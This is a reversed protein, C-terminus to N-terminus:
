DNKKYLYAVNASGERRNVKTIGFSKLHRKITRDSLTGGALQYREFFDTYKCGDGLREFIDDVIFQEGAINEESQKKKKKNVETISTKLSYEDLEHAVIHVPFDFWTSIPPMNKFERLIFEYRWAERPEDEPTDIETISVIADADRAFAGAGAGRDIVSREGSFGKATHHAYAISAGFAVKLRDFETVMRGVDSNSNEDGDILKYIPDIIILSFGQDAYKQILADVFARTNEVRIGVMHLIEITGVPPKGNNAECANRVRNEFSADDVEMNIYLVKGQKCPLGLWTGGTAVAYALEISSVTKGAKSPAILIMKHGQRLVGQILEPKLPKPTEWTQTIDVLEPLEIEAATTVETKTYDHLPVYGKSYASHVITAIEKPSLPPNCKLVNEEWVAAKCANESMGSNLLSCALRYMNDNRGGEGVQEPLTFSTTDQIVQSFPDSTKLKADIFEKAAGEFHAIGLVDLRFRSDWSYSGTPLKSPPAVIYGGEGRIDVGPYLNAENRYLETDRYFLHLGGNATRAIATPELSGAPESCLFDQFLAVGDSDGHKDLDIVVLGESANGTAIGINYNPNTTWWEIVKEEDLTADKCGKSGPLPVKSLESLPFVAMNQRVYDLAANLMINAM